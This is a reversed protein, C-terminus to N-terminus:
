RSRYDVDTQATRCSAAAALDGLTVFQLLRTREDAHEHRQHDHQQQQQQQQMIRDTVM